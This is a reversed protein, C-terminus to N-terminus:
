LRRLKVLNNMLENFKPHKKGAGMIRLEVINGNRMYHLNPSTLDGQDTQRMAGDPDKDIAEKKGATMKYYGTAQSPDNMVTQNVNLTIDKADYRCSLRKGTGFSMENAAKGEAFTDGLVASIEKATFPCPKPANAYALSTGAAIILCVAFKLKM